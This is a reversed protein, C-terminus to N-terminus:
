TSYEIALEHKHPKTIQPKHNTEESVLTMNEEWREKGERRKLLKGQPV